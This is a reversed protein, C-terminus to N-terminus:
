SAALPQQPTALFNLTVDAVDTNVPTPPFQPM